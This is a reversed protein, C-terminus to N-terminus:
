ILGGIVEDAISRRYEFVVDDNRGKRILKKKGGDTTRFRQGIIEM